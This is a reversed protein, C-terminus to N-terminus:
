AASLAQNLSAAFGPGMLELAKCDPHEHPADPNIKAAQLAVQVLNLFEQESTKRKQKYTKWAACILKSLFKGFSQKTEDGNFVPVQPPEDAIGVGPGVRRVFNPVDNQVCHNGLAVVANAVETQAAATTCYAVISDNRNRGSVPGFMKVKQFGDLTKLKPVLAKLVAIGTTSIPHALHVYVRKLASAAGERQFWYVCNLLDGPDELGEPPNPPWHRVYYDHNARFDFEEPDHWKNQLYSTAGIQVLGKLMRKAEDLQQNDAIEALEFLSINYRGYINDVEPEHGTRVSTNYLSQLFLKLDPSM